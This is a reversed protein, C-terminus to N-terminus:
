WFLGAQCPSSCPQMQMIHLINQLMVSRLGLGLPEPSGLTNLKGFRLGGIATPFAFRMLLTIPPPM